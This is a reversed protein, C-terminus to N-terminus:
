DDTDRKKSSNCWCGSHSLPTSSTQQRSGSKRTSSWALDEVMQLESESWNVWGGLSTWAGTTRASSPSTGSYRTASETYTVGIMQGVQAHGRRMLDLMTSRMWSLANM